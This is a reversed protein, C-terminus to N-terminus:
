SFKSLGLIRALRPFSAVRGTAGANLKPEFSSLVGAPSGGQCASHQNAANVRAAARPRRWRRGDGGDQRRDVPVSPGTSYPLGVMAASGWAELNARATEKM